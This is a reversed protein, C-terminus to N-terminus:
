RGDSPLRSLLPGVPAPPEWPKEGRALARGLALSRERAGLTGPVLAVGLEAAFAAIVAERLRAESAGIGLEQLSTGAGSGAARAAAPPDAVLRLSGHQLVGGHTRRQASGALKRDAACIEDARAQAFCDFPPAERGGSAGPAAGSDVGIQTLARLLARSLLRYCAERGPPLETEAAAVAYTLDGGHLVASGGTARRVIGVGARACAEARARPLTQAYGLSLWPGRWAYLRLTPRGGAQASALLAEDVAM